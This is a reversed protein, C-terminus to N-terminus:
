VDSDTGEHRGRPTDTRATFLRRILMRLLSQTRENSKEADRLTVRALVFSAIIVGFNTLIILAESASMLHESEM